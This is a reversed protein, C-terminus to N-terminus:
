QFRRTIGVSIYNSGGRVGFLGYVGSRHHLNLNLAWEPMSPLSFRWDIWLYNMLPSRINQSVLESSPYGTALSLGEGLGLETHVVSNWPFWKWRFTVLADLEFLSASELHKVLHGAWELQYYPSPVLFPRGYEIGVISYPEYDGLRLRVINLLDENNSQGFFVSVHEKEDAISPSLWQSSCLMAILFLVLGRLFSLLENANRCLLM